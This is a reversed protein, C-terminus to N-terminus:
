HKQLKDSISYVYKIGYGDERVNIYSKKGAITTELYHWTFPRGKDDPASLVHKSQQLHQPLRYIANNREFEYDHAKSIASKLNKNSVMVDGVPSGFGNGALHEKAWSIVEGRQLTVEAKRIDKPLGIFYASGEPFVLRKQALNVRYMKPIDPYVINKDPTEQAKHPLQIVSCRCNWGNPPYYTKWFSSYIGKVVGDLLKHEERVRSDGVTRYQLSPMDDAGAEFGVWKAAMQGGAIAANYETELWAQNFEKLIKAAEIKYESFSRIREGDMLAETLSKIQQYNKAASFQYVNRSLHSLMEFDPTDYDINELTNGYGDFLGALLRQATHEATAKDIMGTEIIGKHIKNVLDEYIPSLEGDEGIALPKLSHALLRQVYVSGGCHACKHSYQANVRASLDHHGTFM